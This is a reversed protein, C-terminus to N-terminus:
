LLLLIIEAKLVEYISPYLALPWLLEITLKLCLCVASLETFILSIVGNAKLPVSREKLKLHTRTYDMWMM